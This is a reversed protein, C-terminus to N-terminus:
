VCQTCGSSRRVTGCSRRGGELRAPLAGRRRLAARAAMRAASSDNVTGASATASDATTAAATSLAASAASAALTIQTTTESPFAVKGADVVATPEKTGATGAIASMTVSASAGARGGSTPAAGPSGINTGVCSLGPSESCAPGALMASGAGSLSGPCSLLRRPSGRATSRSAVDVGGTGGAGVWTDCVGVRCDADPLPGCASAQVGTRVAENVGVGLTIWCAARVGRCGRGGM